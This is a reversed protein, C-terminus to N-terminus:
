EGKLKNIGTNIDYIGSENMEDPKNNYPEPLPMWAIVDDKVTKKTNPEFWEVEDVWVMKCFAITITQDKLTVLVNQNCKPMDDEFIIWNM